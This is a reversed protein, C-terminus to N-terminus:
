NQREDATLKHSTTTGISNELSQKAQNRTMLKNLKGIYRVEKQTNMIRRPMLSTIQIQRNKKQKLFLFQGRSQNLNQM